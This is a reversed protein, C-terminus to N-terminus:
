LKGLPALAPLALSESRRLLAVTLEAIRPSSMMVAASRAAFRRCAWLRDYARRLRVIEVARDRAVAGGVAEAALEASRM